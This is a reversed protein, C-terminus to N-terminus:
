VSKMFNRRSSTRTLAEMIYENAGAHFRARSTRSTTRPPASCVKACRRRAHPAFQAPDYGDMVPMNWDLLIADPLGRKCVELAKEGDRSRLDPIWGKWSAGRSREFSAQTM